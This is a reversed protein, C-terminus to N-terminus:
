STNLFLFSKWTLFELMHDVKEDQYTIFLTTRLCIYSGCLTQPPAGQLILLLKWGNCLKVPLETNGKTPIRSRDRCKIIIIIIIITTTTTITTTAILIVEIILMM